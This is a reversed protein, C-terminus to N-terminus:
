RDVYDNRIIEEAVAQAERQSRRAGTVVPVDDRSVDIQWREGALWVMAVYDLITLTRLTLTVTRWEACETRTVTLQM